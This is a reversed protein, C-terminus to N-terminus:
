LPHAPVWWPELLVLLLLFVHGIDQRGTDSCDVCVRGTCPLTGSPLFLLSYLKCGELHVRKQPELLQM